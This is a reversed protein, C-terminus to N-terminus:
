LETFYTFMKFLFMNVTKYNIYILFKVKYPIKFTKSLEETNASVFEAVTHIGAKKCQDIIEATLQPCLGEILLPM